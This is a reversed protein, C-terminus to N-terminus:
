GTAFFIGCRSESDSLLGMEADAHLQMSIDEASCIYYYFTFCLLLVLLQHFDYRDETLEM